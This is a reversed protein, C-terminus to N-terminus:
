DKASHSLTGEASLVGSRMGYGALTFLEITVDEYNHRIDPLAEELALDRALRLRGLQTSDAYAIDAVIQGSYGDSDWSAVTKAVEDEEDEDAQATYIAENGPAYGWGHERDIPGLEIELYVLKDRKADLIRRLGKPTLAFNISLELVLHTLNPLNFLLDDVICDIDEIGHATLALHTLGPLSRFTDLGLGDDNNGLRNGNGILALRKLEPQLHAIMAVIDIDIRQTRKGMFILATLDSCNELVSQIRFTEKNIMLVGGTDRWSAMMSARAHHDSRLPSMTSPFLYRAYYDRRILRSTERASEDRSLHELPPMANNRAYLSEEWARNARVKASELRRRMKFFEGRERKYEPDQEKMIALMAETDNYKDTLANAGGVLGYFNHKAGVLRHLTDTNLMRSQDHLYANMMDRLRRSVRSVTRIADFNFPLVTTRRMMGVVNQNAGPVFNTPGDLEWEEGALRGDGDGGAKLRVAMGRPVGVKWFDDSSVSPADEAFANSTYTAKLIINWIDSGLLELSTFDYM